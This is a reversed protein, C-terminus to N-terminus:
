ESKDSKRSLDLENEANLLHRSNFRLWTQTFGLADEPKDQLLASMLEDILFHLKTEVIYDNCESGEVHKLLDRPDTTSALMEAKDLTEQKTLDAWFYEDPKAPKNKLIDQLVVEFVPTVGSAALWDRDEKEKEQPSKTKIDMHASNERAPPRHHEEEEPPAIKNNNPTLVMLEPVEANGSM